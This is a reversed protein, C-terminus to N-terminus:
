ETNHNFYYVKFTYANVLFVSYPFRYIDYKSCVFSRFIGVKENDESKINKPETVIDGMSKSRRSM